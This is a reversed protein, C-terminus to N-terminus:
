FLFYKLFGSFLINQFTPIHWTENRSSRWGALKNWSTAPIIEDVKNSQM